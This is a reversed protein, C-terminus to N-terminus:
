GRNGHAQESLVQGLQADSALCHFAFHPLFTGKARSLGESGTRPM